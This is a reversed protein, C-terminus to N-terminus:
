TYIFCLIEGVPGSDLVRLDCKGDNGTNYTGEEGM